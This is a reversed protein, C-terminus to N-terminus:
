DFLEAALAEPEDPCLGVRSIGRGTRLEAVTSRGDDVLLVPRLVPAGDDGQGIRWAVVPVIRPELEPDAWHLVAAWGSAPRESQGKTEM